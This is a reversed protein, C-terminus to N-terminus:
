KTENLYRLLVYSFGEYADRLEEDSLTISNNLVKEFLSQKEPIFRLDELKINAIKLVKIILSAFASVDSPIEFSLENEFSAHEYHQRYYDALQQYFNEKESFDQWM